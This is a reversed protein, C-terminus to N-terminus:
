DTNSADSQTPESNKRAQEVADGGIGSLAMIRANIRAIPANSKACLADYDAMSFKPEAVGEIFTLAEARKADITGNRDALSLVHLRQALTFSRVRVEGGWEPVPILEEKLDQAQLVQERTVIAM